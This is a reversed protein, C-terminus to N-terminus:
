FEWGERRMMQFHDFCEIGYYACADPIRLRRECSRKGRDTTVVALKSSFIGDPPSSNYAMAFAVLPQDADQDTKTYDVFDPLDTMLQSLCDVAAQSLPTVMVPQSQLWKAVEDERTYEKAIQEIIVLRGEGALDNLYTWLTKFIPQPYNQSLIILVNTDLSYVLGGSPM